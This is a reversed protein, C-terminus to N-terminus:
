DIRRRGFTSGSRFVGVHLERVTAALVRSAQAQEQVAVIRRIAMVAGKKSVGLIMRGASTEIHVMARAAAPFTRWFFTRDAAAADTRGLRHIVRSSHLPVGHWCLCIMRAGADSTHRGSVLLGQMHDRIYVTLRRRAM